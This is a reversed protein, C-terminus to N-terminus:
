SKPSMKWILGRRDDSILISGDGLELSDVPRGVVRGKQLFGTLFDSQSIAGADDWDLRVVKYGVKGTHNWSGHQAVLASASAKGKFHKMFRLSLPAVHAQFDHATGVPKGHEAAKYNGGFATDRINDGYFFPWGYFGGQVIENVEGPPTNDGLWDRGNDVAYLANTQPHWDFGVSNRLGTAFLETQAGPKFRLMAARWKHREICVNCSSGVTLYFWGDPGKRLTRTSHGGTPIDKVLLEKAGIIKRKQEDFRYRIVHSEEALYLWGDDVVLGFPSDLGKLLVTVAAASKGDALPKILSVQGLRSQAVLVDGQKTMTMFRANPLGDVFLSVVYGPAPTLHLAREKSIGVLAPVFVILGGILGLFMKMKFQM